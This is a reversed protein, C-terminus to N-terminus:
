ATPTAARVRETLANNLFSVGTVNGGPRNLSAVLGVEVPDGTNFVIPITATAAKAALAAPIGGAVIVAMQRRVLDAALAPFRDNQGETWRYEIAVNQGEVYGVENLGQRFPTV